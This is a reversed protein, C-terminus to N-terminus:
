AFFGTKNVYNIIIRQLNDIVEKFNDFFADDRPSKLLTEYLLTEMCNKGHLIEVNPFKSLTDFFNVRDNTKYSEILDKILFGEDQLGEILPSNEGKDFEGLELDLSKSM